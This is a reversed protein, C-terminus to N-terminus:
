TRIDVCTRLTGNKKKGELGYALSPVVGSIRNVGTGVCFTGFYWKRRIWIWSNEFYGNKLDRTVLEVLRLM